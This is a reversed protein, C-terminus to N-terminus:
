RKKSGRLAVYAIIGGLVLGQTLGETSLRMAAPSGPEHRRVCIGPNMTVWKGALAAELGGGSSGVMWKGMPEGYVTKNVM